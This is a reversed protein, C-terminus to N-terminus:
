ADQCEKVNLARFGMVGVNLRAVEEGRLVTAMRGVVVARLGWHAVFTAGSIWLSTVKQGRSTTATRGIGMACRRHVAVMGASSQIQMQLASKARQAPPERQLLHVGRHRHRQAFKFSRLSRKWPKKLQRRSSVILM